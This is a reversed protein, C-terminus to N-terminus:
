ESRSPTGAFHYQVLLKVFESPKRGVRKAFEPEGAAQLLDDLRGMAQEAGSSGTRGELGKRHRAEM